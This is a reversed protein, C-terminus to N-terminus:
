REHTALYLILLEFDDSSPLFGQIPESFQILSRVIKPMKQTAVIAAKKFLATKAM